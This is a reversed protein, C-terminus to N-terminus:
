LKSQSKSDCSLIFKKPKEANRFIKIIEKGLDVSCLKDKEIVFQKESKLVNHQM